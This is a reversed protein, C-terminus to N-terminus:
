KKGRKTRRKSKPKTKTKVQFGVRRRPRPSTPFQQVLLLFTALRGGVSKWDEDDAEALLVAAKTAACTMELLLSALEDPGGSGAVGGPLPEVADDVDEECGDDAGRGTM